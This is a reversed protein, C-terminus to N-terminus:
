AASWYEFSNLYFLNRILAAMNCMVLQMHRIHPIHGHELNTKKYIIIYSMNRQMKKQNRILFVVFLVIVCNWNAKSTSCIESFSCYFTFEPIGTLMPFKFAWTVNKHYRHPNFMRLLADKCRCGSSCFRSYTNFQWSVTFFSIALLTYGYFAAPSVIMIINHSHIYRWFRYM